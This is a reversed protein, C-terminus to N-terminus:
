VHARGIQLGLFGIWLLMPLPSTSVKALEADRKEEQIRDWSKPSFYDNTKWKPM